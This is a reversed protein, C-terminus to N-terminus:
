GVTPNSEEKLDSSKFDQFAGGVIGIVAGMIGLSVPMIVMAFAKGSPTAPSIDGYGVTTMTVVMWWLSDSITGFAEPQAVHELEYIGVAGLIAVAGAISGVVKFESGRNVLGQVIAKAAPSYHYLKLLRLARLARLFGYWAAPAFLSIVFPLISLLDIWFEVSFLWRRGGNSSTQYHKARAFLDAAMLAAFASEFWWFHPPVRATDITKLVDIEIFMLAISAVIALKVLRHFLPTNM